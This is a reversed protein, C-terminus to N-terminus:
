LHGRLFFAASSVLGGSGITVSQSNLDWLWATLWVNYNTALLTPYSEGTTDAVPVVPIAAYDNYLSRGLGQAVLTMASYAPATTSNAIKVEIIPHAMLGTVLAYLFVMPRFQFGPQGINWDAIRLPVNSTTGTATATAGVPGAIYGTGLVPMQTIPVQASANLSAAGYFATSGLATASPTGVYAAPLVPADATVLYSPLAYTADQNNVYTLTAYTAAAVSAAEAAVSSQNPSTTAILNNVALENVIDAAVSAVKGVYALGVM